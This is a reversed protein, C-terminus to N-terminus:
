SFFCTKLDLKKRIYIGVKVENQTYDRPALGFIAHALRTAFYDYCTYNIASSKNSNM